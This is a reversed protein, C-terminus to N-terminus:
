TKRLVVQNCGTWGCTPIAKILQFGQPTLYEVIQPITAYEYPYGGIWDVVDSRFAMGRGRRMPNQGTTLYAGAWKVGTLATVCAAQLGAPLYQYSWKVTKWLPSTWHAHYIAVVLMGGPTKVARSVNTLAAWMAGTHHLVGWAYVIDFTGLAQLFAADLVSGASIRWDPDDPFYQQRLAQTCYMSDVDADFSAVTAGLRRAALSHLGSGSGVDLFMQGALSTRELLTCLATQAENIQASTLDQLFQQWNRGFAFRKDTM